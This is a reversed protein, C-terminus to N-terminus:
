VLYIMGTVNTEIVHRAEAFDQDLFGHGLGRGANALLADIPHEMRKAAQHLKNVDDQTALDAEVAEVKAGFKRFNEAAENIAPSM